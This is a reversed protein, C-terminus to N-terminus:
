RIESLAIERSRLSAPRAVAGLRNLKSLRRVGRNRTHLAFRAMTRALRV